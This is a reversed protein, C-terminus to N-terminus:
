DKLLGTPADVPANEFKLYEYEKAEYGVWDLFVRTPFSRVYRKYDKVGANYYTRHSDIRNETMALESMYRDYNEISRLQPYREVVGKLYLSANVNGNGEKPTRAESLQVLVESEHKDYSKVAEALNRLLGNRRNYEANLDSEASEIVQEKAIASNQSSQVGFICAVATLGALVLVAIVILIAKKM